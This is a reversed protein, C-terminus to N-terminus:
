FKRCNEAKLKARTLHFATWKCLKFLISFPIFTLTPTRHARDVSVKAPPHVNWKKKEQRVPYRDAAAVFARSAYSLIHLWRSINNRSSPISPKSTRAINELRTELKLEEAELKLEDAEFKLDEAQFKSDEAQFKSDESELKLDEAELELKEYELQLKEYELQLKKYEINREEYELKLKISDLKLEQFERKLEESKPEQNESNTVTEISYLHVTATKLALNAKALKINAGALLLNKNKLDLNKSKSFDRLEHTSNEDTKMNDCMKKLNEVTSIM